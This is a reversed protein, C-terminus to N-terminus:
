NNSHFTTIQDEVAFPKPESPKKQLNQFQQQQGSIVIDITQSYQDLPAKEVETKLQLQMESMEGTKLQTIMKPAKKSYPGQELALTAQIHKREARQM